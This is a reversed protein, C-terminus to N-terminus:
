GLVLQMGAYLAEEAGLRNVNRIRQVSIGSQLAINELTEGQRVCYLRGSVKPIRLQRGARLAEPDDLVNAKQLLRMTVGHSRAIGFLTDGEKVTYTIGEAQERKECCNCYCICPIKLERCDSPADPHLLGNARMLMCVPVSDRASIDELTDAPRLRCVTRIEM